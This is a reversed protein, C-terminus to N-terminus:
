LDFATEFLSLYLVARKGVEQKYDAGLEVEYFGAMVRVPWINLAAGYSLYGANFGAMLDILPLGLKMGLHIKRGFDMTSNLPHLDFAFTTDFFGFDQEWSTGLNIMMEQDPIPATGEEIDFRTDGIDMVSMGVNFNSRGIVESHLVGLDYGYAKGESYGFAEKIADADAIGNAIDSLLKTGFLDYTNDVGERKLYKFGFGISTYSGSAGGGMRMSPARGFTYAGGMVFGRDYRYDIDVEPHTKNRLILSTTSNALFNVGFFGGMKVGPSIGTQAYVPLGQLRDNIASVDNSPFNEFRDLEDLANTVGFSPNLLNVEVARSNSLAAPNYFLTYTDDALSTFADGMLLAEPSRNLYRVEQALLGQAFLTFLFIYIVNIM